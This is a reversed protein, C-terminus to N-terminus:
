IDSLKWFGLSKALPADPIFELPASFSYPALQLNIPHFDGTSIARNAMLGQFTSTILYRAGTRKFNKIADIVDGSSFHFLCDRCLIADATPLDDQTIDACLFTVTPSSFKQQNDTIIDSVIDVGTYRIASWDMRRAWYFDGCGADLISKIAYKPLLEALLYRICSTASIESGVGSRSEVGKWLPLLSHLEFVIQRFNYGLAVSARNLAHFLSTADCIKMVELPMRLWMRLEIRLEDESLGHLDQVFRQL